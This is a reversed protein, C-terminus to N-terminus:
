ATTSTGNGRGALGILHPGVRRVPPQNVLEPSQQAFLHELCLPLLDGHMDREDSRTIGRAAVEEKTRLTATPSCNIAITEGNSSLRSYSPCPVCRSSWM